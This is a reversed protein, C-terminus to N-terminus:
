CRLVKGYRDVPYGDENESHNVRARGQLNVVVQRAFRINESRPCYVFSGNQFNTYGMPTMQLFPRNRFARWKLAGITDPPALRSVITDEQDLEGDKDHDTFILIGQSWDRGCGAPDNACLTVMRGRKIATHRAFNVAGIVWNVSTTARNREIITNMAPFIGGLLIVGITIVILCEILTFGCPTTKM